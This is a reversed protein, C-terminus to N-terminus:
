RRGGRRGREALWRLPKTMRWSRSDLLSEKEALAASLAKRAAELDTEAQALEGRTQKLEEWLADRHRILAALPHMEEPRAPAAAEDALYSTYPKETDVLIGNHLNGAQVPERWDGYFGTLISESQRPIPFTFGEFEGEVLDTFWSADFLTSAKRQPNLSFNAVRKCGRGGYRSVARDFQRAEQALAEGIWPIRGNAYFLHRLEWLVPIRASLDTRLASLEGEDDPVADLIFVDIFIGQNFTYLPKGEVTEEELIATTASNRLQAHRRASGPDTENDQWFYPPRFEGPALQRLKEFEPRLMIVDVDDDWPIFGKHRVAGLLTGSDLAYRIGNKKCVRDFELLLDLLM